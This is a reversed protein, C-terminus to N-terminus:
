SGHRSTCPSFVDRRPRPWRTAASTWTLFLTASTVTPSHTRYRTPSRTIGNGSSSFPFSTVRSCATSRRHSRPRRPMTTRAPPRGPPRRQGHRRAPRASPPCTFKPRMTIPGWESQEGAADRFSLPTLTWQQTFANSAVDTKIEIKSAFIARGVPWIEGNPLKSYVTNTIENAKKVCGETRKIYDKGVAAGDCWSVLSSTGVARLGQAVQKREASTMDAPKGVTACYIRSETEECGKGLPAPLADKTLPTPNGPGSNVHDNTVLPEQYKGLDVDPANKDPEPLTIDVSHNRITFTAWPSWTQEYLSGDYASTRFAYTWGPHLYGYDITVSAKEGSAVYGSVPMGYQNKDTDVHEKPSGDANVRWVDFTLDSKDGDPDTM